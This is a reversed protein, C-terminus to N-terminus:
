SNRSSAVCHPHLELHGAAGPRHFLTWYKRVLICSDRPELLFLIVLGLYSTSELNISPTVGHQHGTKNSVVVSQTDCSQNVKHVKTGVECYVCHKMRVDVLGNINNLRNDLRHPLRSTECSYPGDFGTVPIAKAKPFYGINVRLIM